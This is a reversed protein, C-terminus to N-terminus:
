NSVPNQINTDTVAPTCILAGLRYFPHQGAQKIRSSLDIRCPSKDHTASLILSERDFTMSFWGQENTQAYGRSNQLLLYPIPQNNNDVIQGIVDTAFWADINLDVVNGPYLSFKHISHELQVPIESDDVQIVVIHTRYPPLPIFTETNHFRYAMGNIKVFLAHRTAEPVHLLVGATTHGPGWGSAPQNIGYQGNLNSFTNWNYRNNIDEVSGGISGSAWPSKLWASGWARTFDDSGRASISYHDVWSNETKQSNNGGIALPKKSRNSYESYIQRTNYGTLDGFKINLRFMIMTDSSAFIDNHRCQDKIHKGHQLSVQLEMMRSSPMFSNLQTRYELNQHIRHSIKNRSCGLSWSDKEPSFYTLLAVLNHTRPKFRLSDNTKEPKFYDFYTSFSIGSFRTTVGANLGYSQNETTIASARLLTDRFCFARAGLEVASSVSSLHLMSHLSIGNGIPLQWGIGGLSQNTRDSKVSNSSSHPSTGYINPQKSSSVGAWCSFGSGSKGSRDRYVTHQQVDYLEGSLFIKVSVEYVGDPWSATNLANLGAPLNETGILRQDRYAEIRGAAPMFVKVPFVTSKITAEDTKDSTGWSFAIVDEKPLFFGCGSLSRYFDWKNQLGFGYQTGQRDFHYYCDGIEGFHESHHRNKRYDNQTLLRLHHEGKSITTGLDLRHHDSYRSFSQRLTYDIVGTTDLTPSLPFFLNAAVQTSQLLAPDVDLTVLLKEPSFVAQLVKNERTCQVARNEAEGCIVGEKQIGQKLQNLMWDVVTEKFPHKKLSVKLFKITSNKTTIQGSGISKNALIIDIDSIQTDLLKEFGSPTKYRTTDGSFSSFSFLITLFFVIFHHIPNQPLIFIEERESTKINEVHKGTQKKLLLAM